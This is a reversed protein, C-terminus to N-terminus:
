FKFCIDILFYFLGPISGNFYLFDYIFIVECWPKGSSDM